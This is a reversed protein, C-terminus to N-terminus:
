CFCKSLHFWDWHWPLKLNKLNSNLNFDRSTRCIIYYWLIHNFFFLFYMVYKNLTVVRERRVGLVMRWPPLVVRPLPIWHGTFKKIAFCLFDFKYKFCSNSCQHTICYPTIQCGRQLINDLGTHIFYKNNNSLTQVKALWHCTISINTYVKLLFCSITLLHVQCSTFPKNWLEIQPWQVIHISLFKINPISPPTKITTQSKLCLTGIISYHM